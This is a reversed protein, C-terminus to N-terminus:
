SYKPGSSAECVQLKAQPYRGDNMQELNKCAEELKEKVSDKRADQTVSADSASGGESTQATSLLENLDVGVVSLAAARSRLKADRSEDDTSSHRWLRPYVRECVEREVAEEMAIKKLELQRRAKRRDFVESATLMQQESEHKRMSPRDKTGRRGGRNSATSGTSSVSPAPSKERAIRTSLAAVHTSIHSEVHVYFDQYLEALREISLVASSSKLSLSELFREILSQIEIPLEDFDNSTAEEQIGDLPKNPEEEDQTEFIDSHSREPAAEPTQVQPTNVLLDPSGVLINAPDSTPMGNLPMKTTLSDYRPLLHTKLSPLRAYDVRKPM